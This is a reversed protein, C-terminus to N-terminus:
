PRNALLRGLHRYRDESMAHKFQVHRTEAPLEEAGDLEAGDELESRAGLRTV